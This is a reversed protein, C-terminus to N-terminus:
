GTVVVTGHMRAHVQCHYEFTGPGTFSHNFVGSSMRGSDFSNDDATVTHELGGDDFKWVVPKGVTARVEKPTFAISKVLVQGEPVNPPLTSDPTVDGSGESKCGAGLIAAAVLLTAPIVLPRV